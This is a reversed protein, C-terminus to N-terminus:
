LSKKMYRKANVLDITSTVNEAATTAIYNSFEGNIIDACEPCITSFPVLLDRKLVLPINKLVSKMQIRGTFSIALLNEYLHRYVRDKPIEKLENETQLYYRGHRGGRNDIIFKDDILLDGQLIGNRFRGIVWRNEATRRCPYDVSLWLRLRFRFDIGNQVPKPM